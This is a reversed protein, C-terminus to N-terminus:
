LREGIVMVIKQLTHAEGQVHALEAELERIRDKLKLVIGSEAPVLHKSEGNGNVPVLEGSEAAKKAKTRERKRAADRAKREEDSIARSVKPAPAAEKAAAKVKPGEAAKATASVAGISERYIRLYNYLSAEHRNLAFSADKINPWEKEHLRKGLALKEEHTM